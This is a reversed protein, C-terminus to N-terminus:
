AQCHSAFRRLCQSPVAFTLVQAHIASSPLYSNNSCRERSCGFVVSVDVISWAHAPSIHMHLAHHCQGRVPTEGQQCGRAGSKCAGPQADFRESFPYRRRDRPSLPSGLSDGSECLLSPAAHGGLVSSLFDDRSVETSTDTPDGSFVFRKCAASDWVELSPPLPAERKKEVDSFRPIRRVWAFLMRRACPGDCGSNLGVRASSSSSSGDRTRASADAPPGADDWCEDCASAKSNVQGSTNDNAQGAFLANM